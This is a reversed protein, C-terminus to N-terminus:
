RPLAPILDPFEYEWEDTLEGAEADGHVASKLASIKKRKFPDLKLVLEVGCFPCDFILEQEDSIERQFSFKRECKGCQFTLRKKIKKM